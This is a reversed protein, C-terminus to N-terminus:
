SVGDEHNDDEHVNMNHEKEIFRSADHLLKKKCKEKSWNEKRKHEKRMVPDGFFNTFKHIFYIRIFPLTQGKGM